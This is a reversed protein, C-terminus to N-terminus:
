EKVHLVRKRAEFLGSFLDLASSMVMSSGINSLSAGNRASHLPTSRRFMSINGENSLVRSIKM